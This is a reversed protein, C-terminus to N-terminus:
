VQLSEEKSLGQQSKKKHSRASIMVSAKSKQKKSVEQSQQYCERRQQANKMLGLKNVSKKNVEKM